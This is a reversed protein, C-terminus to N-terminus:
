ICRQKHYPGFQGFILTKTNNKEGKSETASTVTKTGIIIKFTSSYDQKAKLKILMLFLQRVQVSLGDFYLIFRLKVTLQHQVALSFAVYSPVFDARKSQLEQCALYKITSVRLTGFREGSVLTCCLM